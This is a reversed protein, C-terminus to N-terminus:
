QAKIVGDCVAADRSFLRVTRFLDAVKGTCLCVCVCVCVCVFHCESAHVYLSLDKSCIEWRCDDEQSNEELNAECEMEALM